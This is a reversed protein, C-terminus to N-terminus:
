APMRAIYFHLVGDEESFATYGAATRTDRLPDDEAKTPDLYTVGVPLVLVYTADPLASSFTVLQGAISATGVGARETENEPGPPTVGTAGTNDLYDLLGNQELINDVEEQGSHIMQLLEPDSTVNLDINSGLEQKASVSLINSLPFAM